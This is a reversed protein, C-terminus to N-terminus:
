ELRGTRPNFTRVKEGQPSDGGIPPKGFEQRMQNIRASREEIAKNNNRQIRQLLEVMLATDTPTRPMDQQWARVADGETQTGKALLLADNRQKKLDNMMAQYARSAPSSRGALNQAEYMVVNKPTLSFVGKNLNNLHIDLNANISQATRQDAILADQEKVITSPLPKEPAQLNPPLQAGRTVAGPAAQMVGGPGQLYTVPITPPMNLRAIQDNLEKVNDDKAPDVGAARLQAVLQNRRNQLDIFPPMGADRAPPRNKKELYDSYSKPDWRALASEWAPQNIQPGVIAPPMSSGNDDFGVLNIDRAPIIANAFDRDMSAQRDAAAKRQAVQYQYEENRQNQAEKQMEMQSKIRSADQYAQSGGMLGASLAQNLNGKTGLLGAAMALIMQTRPDEMDTGFFNQM